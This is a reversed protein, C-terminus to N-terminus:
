YFYAILSGGIKKDIAEKHTILGKSTSLIIIGFNRSPLYRRVYREIREVKVNFRPKIAKCANFKFEVKLEKSKEDLELNKIYGEEKAVKLVNILLVSYRKLIVYSKRARKMNMMINLGDSVVDQSM